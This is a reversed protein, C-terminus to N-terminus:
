GVAVADKVTQLNLEGKRGWGKQGPPINPRFEEYMKFAEHDLEREKGKWEDLAEEMVNKVREFEEDGFKKKLAAENGKKPKGSVVAQGDKVSFKFSMVEIEDLGGKAAKEQQKKRREAAAGPDPKEMTGISRGKAIATVTAIAGGVSLCTEWPLSPYLLHTVCSSWLELVPARNILIVGDQVDGDNAAPTKKEPSRSTSTAKAASTKHKKGASESSSPAPKRKRSQSAPKDKTATGTVEELKPQKTASRTTAPM